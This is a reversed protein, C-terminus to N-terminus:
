EAVVKKGEGIAKILIRLVESMTKGRKACEIKFMFRDQEEINKIIIQAM